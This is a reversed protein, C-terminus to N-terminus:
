ALFVVICLLIISVFGKLVINMAENTIKKSSFQKLLKKTLAHSLEDPLESNIYIYCINLYILIYFM